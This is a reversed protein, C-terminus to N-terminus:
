EANTGQFALCGGLNAGSVGCNVSQSELLLLALLFWVPVILFISHLAIYTQSMIVDDFSFM